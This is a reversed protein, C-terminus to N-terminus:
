GGKEVGQGAVDPATCRHVCVRTCIFGEATGRAPPAQHASRASPNPNVIFVCTDGKEGMSWLPDQALGFWGIQQRLRQRWQELM